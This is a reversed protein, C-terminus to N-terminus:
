WVDPLEARKPAGVNHNTSKVTTGQWIWYVKRLKKWSFISLVRFYEFDAMKTHYSFPRRHNSPACLMLVSLVEKLFESHQSVGENNHPYYAHALTGGPGDFPYSDYHYGNVFSILIDVNDDPVTPDTEEKITLTSAREWM